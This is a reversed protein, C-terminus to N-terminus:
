KDEVKLSTDRGDKPRFKKVQPAFEDASRELLDDCEMLTQSTGPAAKRL